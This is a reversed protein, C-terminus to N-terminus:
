AGAERLEREARDIAAQRERNGRPVAQLPLGDAAQTTAAIFRLVAAISTKRGGCIVTTLCVGHRGHKRMRFLTAPSPRYGVAREFATGLPLLPEGHLLPPQESGVVRALNASLDDAAM